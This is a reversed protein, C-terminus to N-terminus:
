HAFPMVFADPALAHEVDRDGRDTLGLVAAEPDVDVGGQEGGRLGILDGFEEVERGVIEPDVADRERGAECVLVGRALIDEHAPALGLFQHALDEPAPLFLAAFPRQRLRAQEEIEHAAVLAVLAGRPAHRAPVHETPLLGAIQEDVFAVNGGELIEDLLGIPFIVSDPAIRFTRVAHRMAAELAGRGIVREPVGELSEPRTDAPGLQTARERGVRRDEVVSWLGVLPARLAVNGDRVEAADPVSGDVSGRLRWMDIRAAAESASHSATSNTGHRAHRQVSFNSTSSASSACGVPKVTNIGARLSAATSPSVSAASRAQTGRAGTTTISSSDLSPVAAMARLLPRSFRFSMRPVAGGIPQVPLSQASSCPSWCTVVGRTSSSSASMRRALPM